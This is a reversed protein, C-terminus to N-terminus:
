ISNHTIVVVSTLRCPHTSAGDVLISTLLNSLL